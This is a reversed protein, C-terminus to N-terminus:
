VVLLILPYVAIAYDLALAQPTNVNVCIHPLLTRFFDLNWIGYLTLIIRTLKSVIPYSETVVLLVRVNVGASVFQSISVFVLLKPSTASLRCCVVLVFSVTLPLFAALIYKVWNFPSTSCHVCKLDYSYVPIGYNEKCKGCLQGERNLHDCMYNNLETINSPVLDYLTHTRTPRLLNYFCAGVVPGTSKNYTMCHCSGIFAEKTSDNCRVTGHVNDGCRCTGNLSPDPFFWTPCQSDHPVDAASKQNKCKCKPKVAVLTSNYLEVGNLAMEVGSYPPKAKDEWCSLDLTGNVEDIYVLQKPQVSTGRVATLLLLLCTVIEYVVTSTAM